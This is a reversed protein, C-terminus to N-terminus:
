AKLKLRDNLKNSAWATGHSLLWFAAIFLFLLEVPQGIQNISSSVVLFLDAFGVAIGLTTAKILWIYQNALAPLMFRFALPLQIKRYIQWSSLGLAKGAEVQGRPVAEFGARIVEAIYASGYVMIGVFIASVEPPFSIGGAVGFGQLRPVDVLGANPLRAGWLIAAAVLLAVTAAGGIFTARARGSWTAAGKSSAAWGMLLGGGLFASAVAFKALPYIALDPIAIGRASLFIGGPLIIAERPRPLATFVAYWIFIQLIPPVNRIVDVYVLSVWRLIVNKSNRAMAVILGLVSAALIAGYGVVVTNLLGVLLAWWYPDRISYGLISFGIDWGTSRMLFSFGSTVGKRQMEYVAMTTVSIAAVALTGVFAGQLLWDRTRRSHVFWGV